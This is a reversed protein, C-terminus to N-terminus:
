PFLLNLTPPSSKVFITSKIHSVGWQRTSREVVEESAEMSTTSVEMATTSAEMFTIYAEM